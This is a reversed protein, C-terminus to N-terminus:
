WAESFGFRITINFLLHPSSTLLTSSYTSSYAPPVHSSLLQSSNVSIPSNSRTSNKRSGSGRNSNSGATATAAERHVGAQQLSYLLRNWRERM